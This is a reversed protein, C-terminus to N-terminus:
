GEEVSHTNLVKDVILLYSCKHRFCNDRHYVEHLLGQRDGDGTPM